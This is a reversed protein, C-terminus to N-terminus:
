QFLCLSQCKSVVKVKADFLGLRIFAQFVLEATKHYAEEMRPTVLFEPLVYYPLAEQLFSILGDLSHASFLVQSWFRCFMWKM